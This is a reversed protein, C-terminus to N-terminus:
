HLFNCQFPMAGEADTQDEQSTACMRAGEALQLDRHM